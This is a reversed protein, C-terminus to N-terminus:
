SVDQGSIATFREHERLHVREDNAVEDGNPTFLKFTAPVDAKEKIELGTAYHEPFEIERRNVFITVPHHHGEHIHESAASM